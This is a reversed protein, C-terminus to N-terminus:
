DPDDAGASPKEYKISLRSSCTDQHFKLKDILIELGTISGGM